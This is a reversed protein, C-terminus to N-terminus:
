FIVEINQTKLKKLINQPIGPDSILTDIDSIDGSFVFSSVGLKSSDALVFVHDARKMVLEKTYAENTDTTSIGKEPDFGITGLFAKSINMGDLIKYYRYENVLQPNVANGLEFKLAVIRQTEINEAEYVDGFSGGGLRRRVRYKDNLVLGILDSRPARM